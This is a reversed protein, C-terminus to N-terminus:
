LLEDLYNVCRLVSAALPQARSLPKEGRARSEAQPPRQPDHRGEWGGADVESLLM